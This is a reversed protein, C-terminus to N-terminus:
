NKASADAISAKTVKALAQELFTRAEGFQGRAYLLVGLNEAAGRCQANMRLGRRFAREADGTEGRSAQVAGWNSWLESSESEALATALLEAAATLDGVSHLEAAREQATKQAQPKPM